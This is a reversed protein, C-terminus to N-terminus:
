SFSDQLTKQAQPTEGFIQSNNNLPSQFNKLSAM